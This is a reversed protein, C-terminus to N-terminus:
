FRISAEATNNDAAPDVYGGFVRAQLTATGTTSTNASFTGNVTANPSLSPLTCRISTPQVVCSGGAIEATAATLGNALTIEVNVNAADIVALNAAAFAATLTAGAQATAPAQLTVGLDAEPDIVLTGDGANNSSQADNQASVRAAISNSGIVDSRLSLHIVRSAGAPIDGMECSIIGAGSTCTGGAIWAEDVIVVPPVLLTARADIASSGGSNTVLLEWAFPRAVARTMTGLDAAVALDAPPLATVCQASQVRPLMANLSCQSFASANQGVAPSMVYEGQPTGACQGEGDHGAGFNHGIEHAAILSEIWSSRNNVETLSVGYQQRCLTDTYAIGVTDGDLNRGTFLHTLGRSYLEPSNRRLMGLESLLTGPVTTASRFLM